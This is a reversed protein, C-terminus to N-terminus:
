AYGRGVRGDGVGRGGAGGGGTDDAGGGGVAAGFAGGGAGRRGTGAGAGGAGGAGARAATGGTLEGRSGAAEAGGAASFGRDSIVTSSRRWAREEGTTRRIAASCLRSMRSIGPVPMAPRTVFCSMRPWMSDRHSPGAGSFAAAEGGGVAAAAGGAGPAGDNARPARVWTTGMDGIRLFVASCMTREFRVDAWTAVTNSISM